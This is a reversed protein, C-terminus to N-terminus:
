LLFDSKGLDGIDVGKLTITEGPEFEIVTNQGDEDMMAKLTKFSAIDFYSLDIVDHASGSATFDTVIEKHGGNEKIFVFTDAGSGGSMVDDGAGGTLTDNGAGASLIDDSTGGYLKDKGAGGYLKDVGKGGDLTDNGADGYLQDKGAGGGLTDNGAGGVLRDDDEGGDLSDDGEGGNLTDNGAAGYLTDDGGLGSLVDDSALGFIREGSSTGTLTDAKPTGVIDDGAEATATFTVTLESSATTEGDTATYTVKVVATDSGDIDAGTYSVSLTGDDNLTVVGDGSSIVAATVDIDFGDTVTDNATVDVEAAAHETVTTADSASQLAAYEVVTDGDNFTIGAATFAAIQAASLLVRDPDLDVVDVGAEGLAAIDTVSLAKIDDPAAELEIIDVGGADLTEATEAALAQAEALSVTAVITNSDVFTFGADILDGAQTLTFVGSGGTVNLTAGDLPALAEPSLSSLTALEAASDSIELANVGITEGKEVISADFDTAEAVSISLALSATSYISLGNDVLANVQDISVSAYEEVFFADIKVSALDAISDTTLGSIDEASVTMRVVSADDYAFALGKVAMERVVDGDINTSGGTFTITQVGFDALSDIDDATLTDLGESGDAIVVSDGESFAAGLDSLARWESVTLTVEGDDSVDFMDVFTADGEVYAAIFADLDAATGSVTIADGDAFTVGADILTQAGTTSLTAADDTLDFVDAGIGTLASIATADLEALDTSALQVTVMDGDAFSIEASVYANAQDLSLTAADDTADMATVGMAGLKAIDSDSFDDLAGGEASVTVSAAELITLGSIGILSTALDTSLTVDGADTVYITKVGLEILDAVDSQSLNDITAAPESLSPAEIGIEFTQTYVGDSSGWAVVIDGNDLEVLNVGYDEGNGYGWDTASHTLSSPMAGGIANGDEDYVQVTPIWTGSTLSYWAVAYGGNSLALVSPYIDYTNSGSSVQFESTVTTGDAAFQKCFIEYNSSNDYSMWTSVFGGNALPTVDSWYQYGETTDNVRTEGLVVSGSNDYVKTYVGYSSGDQGESSWTVSFGGEALAIVRPLYQASTTYENVRTEGLIEAGDASYIKMYVGEGSSDQGYSTWVIAFSGNELPTVKQNYQSNNTYDNVKTEGLVEAGSADLIKMYVGYSSGDKTYDAWSVVLNGDPLVSVDNYSYSYQSSADAVTVVLDSVGDATYTGLKIENTTYDTWVIAFGGDALAATEASAWGGNSSTSSIVTPEGAVSGDSNLIEFYNVYGTESSDYSAWTIVYGGGTLATVNSDYTSSTTAVKTDSDSTWSYEGSSYGAGIDAAALANVQALSLTLASDTAKILSVGLTSIKAIGEDDILELNAATDAVTLVDGEDFSVGADALSIAQELTISAEDDPLDVSNGSGLLTLIESYTTM